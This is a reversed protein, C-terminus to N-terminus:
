WSPSWLKALLMPVVSPPICSSPKRLARVLTTFLYAVALAEELLLVLRERPLVDPLAQRGDDRHLELVRLELALRLRLEAVGGHPRQDLLGRVGPQPVPELLVRGLGLLHHGLDIWAVRARRAARWARSRVRRLDSSSDADIGPLSASQEDPIGALRLQEDDLAVRAPPEALCARSRSNWAIRGIRPFIRLTSRARMSRISLFSSIWASIVAMPAPIASSNM